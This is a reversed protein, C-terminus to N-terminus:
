QLCGLDEVKPEGALFFFYHLAKLASKKEGLSHSLLFM